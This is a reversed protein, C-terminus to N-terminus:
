ECDIKNEEENESESDEILCLMKMRHKNTKLHKSKYHQKIQQGCSCIIVKNEYKTSTEKYKDTQQYEKHYDKQYEKCKDTQRFETITRSPIRSNLTAGLTELWYRERKHLEQKDEAEYKEIEVMAWNDWGGNDRIFKYVPLHYANRNENYCSSKHMHKRAKMTVTSGIYIDTINYDLCCLKYISSKSYDPM